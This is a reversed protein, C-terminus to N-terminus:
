DGVQGRLHSERPFGDQKTKRRVLTRLLEVNTLSPLKM